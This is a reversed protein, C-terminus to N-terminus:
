SLIDNIIEVLLHSEVEGCYKGVYNGILRSAGEVEDEVVDIKIKVSSNEIAALKSRKKLTNLRISNVRNLKEIHSIKADEVKQSALKKGWSAEQQKRTQMQSKLERYKNKSDLESMRVKESSLGVSVAKKKQENKQHVKESDIAMKSISVIKKAFYRDQTMKQVEREHESRMKQAKRTRARAARSELESRVGDLEKKEAKSRMRLQTVDAEKQSENLKKMHEIELRTQNAKKMNAVKAKDVAMAKEIAMGVQKLRVLKTFAIQMMKRAFGDSHQSSKVDGNKEVKQTDDFSPKLPRVRPVISKSNSDDREEEEEEKTKKRNETLSETPTNPRKLDPLPLPRQLTNSLKKRNATSSLLSNLSYRDKLTVQHLTPAFIKQSELEIEFKFPKKPFRLSAVLPKKIPMATTLSNKSKKHANQRNQDDIPNTRAFANELTDVLGMGLMSQTPERQPLEQSQSHSDTESLDGPPNLEKYLKVDKKWPNFNFRLIDIAEDPSIDKRRLIKTTSDDTGGNYNLSLRNSRNYEDNDVYDYYYEFNDDEVQRKKRVRKKKWKKESINHKILCQLNLKKGAQMGIHMITKRMIFGVWANRISNAACFRIVDSEHMVSKFDTTLYSYLSIRLRAEEPNAFTLRVIKHRRLWKAPMPEHLMSPSVKMSSVGFKFLSPIDQQSFVLRGTPIFLMPLQMDGPQIMVFRESSYGFNVKYKTEVKALYIKDLKAKTIYFVNTDPLSRFFHLVELSHTITQKFFTSHLFNKICQAARKELAKKKVKKFTRGRVLFSRCSSQIVLLSSITRVTKEPFLRIRSPMEALLQSIIETFTKKDKYKCCFLTDYVPPKFPKIPKVYPKYSIVGMLCEPSFNVGKKTVKTEMKKLSHDHGCWISYTPPKKVKLPRILASNDITYIVIPSGPLCQKHADILRIKRYNSPVEEEPFPFNRKELFRKLRRLHSSAIYFTFIDDKEFISVICLRRIQYGRWVSQIKRASVIEKIRQRLQFHLFNSRIKNAANVRRQYWFSFFNFLYKTSHKLLKYKKRQQFGRYISQMKDITSFHRIVKSLSFSQATSRLYYRDTTSSRIYKVYIFIYNDITSLPLISDESSESLNLLSARYQSTIISDNLVILKPFMFVIQDFSDKPLLCINGTLVLQRLNNLSDLKTLENISSIKNDGLNLHYLNVLSSFKDRSPLYSILNGSLDIIQLSTLQFLEEPFYQIACLRFSIIRLNSLKTLISLDTYRDSLGIYKIETLPTSKNAIEAAEYIIDQTLVSFGPDM